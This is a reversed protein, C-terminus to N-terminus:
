ASVSTPSCVSGAFPECGLINLAMPDYQVDLTWAGLGPEGVDAIVAVTVQEGVTVTASTVHLTGSAAFLTNAALLAVVLVAAATVAAPLLPKLPM